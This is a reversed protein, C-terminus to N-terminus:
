LGHKEIKYYLSRLSIGLARATQSRNFENKKLVEQLYKKEAGSLMEQLTLEFHHEAGLLESLDVMGGRIGKDALLIPPLHHKELTKEGLKVNIMARGIYNELERINGPWHYKKLIELVDRSIEFVHRGYDQNFKKIMFNALEDIDGLHDRLPPMHIPLVNLRYYLDKRFLGREVLDELDANTATIIRVDVRIAKTGGVRVIEREQLVRLLKAQASLTIEAIEDLFVTGGHAMEFYGTKGGKLAGTFAGGEYGFLESEMLNEAIAACNVRIFQSNMRPSGNHIAHAVLEKGTGSEGRIIVTAPTSAALKAKEIASTINMDSGKIDDFTYKAELNRIIRKAQDLELSLAKIESLDHIVAVSGALKGGVVIPAADVIVEKRNIGVSLRANKVPKGTRIVKLHVSDGEMLDVTCEKGIVDRETFGTIRTYAPNIMVGYGESDVVSIADQTADFIAELMGRIEKLDTIEEALTVVDTIDRFVAIAGVISGAEDLVPMRNTIIEVDGMPQRRNLESEGTKLIHPLRTYTIVSEVPRGLAEGAPIRTLKEAAKNFLTIIGEENVAIMGDYTSNVFLEIERKM